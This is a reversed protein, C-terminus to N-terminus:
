LVAKVIIDYVFFCIIPTLVVIIAKATFEYPKDDV